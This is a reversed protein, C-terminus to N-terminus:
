RGLVIYRAWAALRETWSAAKRAAAEGDHPREYYARVFANLDREQQAAAEPREAPPRDEGARAEGPADGASRAPDRPWRSRRLLIAEREILYAEAPRRRSDGDAETRAREARPELKAADAFDASSDPESQAM